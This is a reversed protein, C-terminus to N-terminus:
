EEQVEQLIQASSKYIFAPSMRGARSLELLSEILNEMQQANARTGSIVVSSSEPIDSLHGDITNNM